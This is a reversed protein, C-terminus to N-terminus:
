GQAQERGPYFRREFPGLMRHQGGHELPYIGRDM